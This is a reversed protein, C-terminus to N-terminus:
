MACTKSCIVGDEFKLLRKNQGVFTNIIKVDNKIHVTIIERAMVVTVSFYHTKHLFCVSNQTYNDPVLPDCHQLFLVYIFRSFAM